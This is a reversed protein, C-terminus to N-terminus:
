YCESYNKNYKRINEPNKEAGQKSEYEINHLRIILFRIKKIDQQVAGRNVIKM